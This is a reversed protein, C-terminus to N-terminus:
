FALSDDTVEASAEYAAFSAALVIALGGFRRHPVIPAM